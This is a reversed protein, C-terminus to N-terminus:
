QLDRNHYFMFVQDQQPLCYHNSSHHQHRSIRQSLLLICLRLAIATLFYVGKGNIGLQHCSTLQAHTAQGVILFVVVVLSIENELAGPQPQVVLAREDLSVDRPLVRRYPALRALPREVEILRPHLEGRALPEEGLYATLHEAIVVLADNAGVVPGHCCERVVEDLKAVIAVLVLNVEHKGIVLVTLTHVAAGLITAAVLGVLGHLVQPIVVAVRTHGKAGRQQKHVLTQLTLILSIGLLGVVLM